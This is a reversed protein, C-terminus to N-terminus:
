PIVMVKIAESPRQGPLALAEAAQALGFRHTIIPDVQVLGSALLPIAEAFDAAYLRTALLSLEKRYVPEFDLAIKGHPLAVFVIGGGRRTLELASALTAEAGVMELVVDFGDPCLRRGADLVDEQRNDLAQAAGLRMALELREPVQDVALVAQAGWARAVQLALLGIVGTGLIAVSSGPGIGARHCLHVAVATPEALAAWEGSMGEPVPFLLEQPVVFEEAMGGDLHVGLVRVEACHNVRGERCARCIGCTLLPRVAVRQGIELVVGPGAELVRGGVEHGPVVPYAAYPHRGALLAVDSGCIGIAEVQLRVEGEALPRRELDVFEVVGPRPVRVANLTPERRQRAPQGAPVSKV